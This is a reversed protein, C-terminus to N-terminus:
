RGSIQTTATADLWDSVAAIFEQPQDLMVWHGTRLGVVRSGPRRALADIWAPSHFMFPKRQGYLYLM